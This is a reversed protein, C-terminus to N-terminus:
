LRTTMTIASYTSPSYREPPRGHRSSRRVPTSPEDDSQPDSMMSEDDVSEDVDDVANHQEVIETNDQPALIIIQENDDSDEDDLPIVLDDLKKDKKAQIVPTDHIVPGFLPLLSNRHKNIIKGTMLNKVTYVPIDDAPVKVIEHPESNWRDDIKSMKIIKRTVVIDGIQLERIIPLNKDYYQKHKQQSKMIATKCKDYADKLSRRVDSIYDNKYVKDNNVDLVIDGVLRPERGFMIYFPSYQTTAHITTNYAYQLSALQNKWQRKTSNEMTGLMDLLTQNLRECTANGQPTYPLSRTHKMECMDTLEKMVSNVFATGNDSHICNPFGYKTFIEDMLKKATTSAKENNVHIFFAYKSFQDVVTLVKQTGTARHDISVHDVCIIDMPHRATALHGMSTKNKAPLTKRLTCRNCQKIAEIIHSRMKPWYFRSEIIQLTRDEGMHGQAEHYCKMFKPLETKTVVIRGTDDNTKLKLVNQDIYLQKRRRLIAKVEPTFCRLQKKSVHNGKSIIKKVDSIAKDDQQLQIWDRDVKLAQVSAVRYATPASHNKELDAVIVADMHTQFGYVREQLLEKVVVSQITSVPKCVDNCWIHIDDIDDCNNDEEHLRSLADAAVNAVGPKYQVTFNFNALESCWRQSTADIKSKDLLYKLPNNDTYVSCKNGNYLYEKFKDTVAWKLGLFELKHTSYGQETRSTKRSAYAIPRKKKNDDLQYLVAGLGTKCADVELMFDKEFNAFALTVDQVLIKKLNDFAVQCESTWKFLEEELKKNQYRNPRKNSYGQLLNSMPAVTTAYGKIYKRFYSAFGLLRRVDRVCTPTPWDTIKSTKEPDKRVGHQSICHGLYTIEKQLLRCKRPKLRLGHQKLKDFVRALKELHESETRSFVVIDDIYALCDTHLTGHLAKEIMKQFTAGSNCLGFPLRTWEYFGLPGATFATYEQSSKELKVQWYGQMLDLSSFVRADGLMDIAEEIRPLSRANKKTRKNLTRYDVCIRARGDKKAVVTIPSSYPSSSETIIGCRLMSELQEKVDAYMSPPIRRYKEKFPVDSDVEITHEGIDSCGLEEDTLAFVDAYQVILNKLDQLYKDDVDPFQFEKLLDEDRKSLTRTRLIEDPSTVKYVPMNSNMTISDETYNKVRVPIRAVKENAPVTTLVPEVKLKQNLINNVPLCIVTRDFKAATVKARGDLTVESNAPVPQRQCYVLGVASYIQNCHNIGRRWIKDVGHRHRPLCKLVNTGILIPVEDSFTTSKVVLLIVPKKGIGPVDIVTEVYGLFQLADGTASEFTTDDLLNNLDKIVIHRLQNLLFSESVTSIVSGTDVLCKTSVVDIKIDTVSAEGIM